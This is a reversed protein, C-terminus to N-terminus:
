FGTKSDQISDHYLGALADFGGHGIIAVCGLLLTTSKSIKTIIVVNSRVDDM